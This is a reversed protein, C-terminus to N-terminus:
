IGLECKGKMVGGGKLFKILQELRPRIDNLLKNSKDDFEDLELFKKELEKEGFCCGLVDPIKLEDFDAKEPGEFITGGDKMFFWIKEEANFDSDYHTDPENDHSTDEIMNFISNVINGVSYSAHSYGSSEVLNPFIEELKERTKVEIDKKIESVKEEYLSQCTKVEILKKSIESYGTHLHELGWDVYDVYDELKVTNMRRIEKPTAMKLEIKLQDNETTPIELFLKKENYDLKAIVYVLNSIVPILFKSHKIKEQKEQFSKTSRLTSIGVFVLAATGIIIGTQSFFMNSNQEKLLKDHVSLVNVDTVNRVRHEFVFNDTENRYLLEIKLDQPGLNKMFFPLEIKRENQPSISYQSPYTDIIKGSQLIEVKAYLMAHHEWKSTSNVVMLLGQHPSVDNENAKNIIKWDTLKIVEDEHDALPAILIGERFEQLENYQIILVFILVVAIGVPISTLLNSKWTMRFCRQNRAM